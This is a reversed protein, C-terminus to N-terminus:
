KGDDENVKGRNSRTPGCLCSFIGLQALCTMALFSDRM